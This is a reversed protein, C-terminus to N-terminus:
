HCLCLVLSLFFRDVSREACREEERDAAEKIRQAEMAKEAERHKAEVEAAEKLM